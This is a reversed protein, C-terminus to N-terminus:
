APTSASPLNPDSLPERCAKWFEQQLRVGDPMPLAKYQALTLGFTKVMVSNKEDDTKEDIFLIEYEAITIKYLDIIIKRKDSLVVESM